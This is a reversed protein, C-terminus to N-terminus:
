IHSTDKDASKIDVSRELSHPLWSWRNIVSETWYTVSVYCLLAKRPPGDTWVCCMGSSWLGLILIHAVIYIDRFAINCQCNHKNQNDTIASKFKPRNSTCLQWTNPLGPIYCACMIQLAKITSKLRKQVQSGRDVSIFWAPKFFM